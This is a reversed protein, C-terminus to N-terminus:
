CVSFAFGYHRFVVKDYEGVKPCVDITTVKWVFSGTFIEDTQFSWRWDSEGPSGAEIIHGRVERGDHFVKPNLYRICTPKSYFVTAMFTICETQFDQCMNTSDITYPIEWKGPVFIWDEHASGFVTKNTAALLLAAIVTTTIFLSRNLHM